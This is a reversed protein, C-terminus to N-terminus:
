RWSRVKRPHVAELERLAEDLAILDPRSQPSVVLGEDLTVKRVGGGRKDKGRARAFDVLIRRM